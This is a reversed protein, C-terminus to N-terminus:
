PQGAVRTPTKRDVISGDGIQGNQNYGWCYVVKDVALGCTHSAGAVIASFSLGGAVPAPTQRSAVSGDGLAGLWNGGWCYAAGSTTLACTHSEGASVSAFPGGAVLVPVRRNSYSGDGLQGYYNDGWCYAEGSTTVGCSHYGPGASVTRFRLGGAVAVPAGRNTRSGDGLEGDYNYGWCYATGDITVGCVHSWGVSLSAFRHGGAVQSPLRPHSTAGADDGIQGFRNNGWCYAAGDATLACSQNGGAYLARFPPAGSIAIPTPTCKTNVQTGVALAWGCDHTGFAGAQALRNSLGLGWCYTAGGSTLGCVHWGGASISVFSLGGIVPLPGVAGTADDTVVTTHVGVGLQDFSNQGWCSAQGANTLACTFYYGARLSVFSAPAASLVTVPAGGDIDDVTAGITVLGTGVATVRGTEDVTAVASNSTRWTIPQGTVESCRGLGADCRYARATLNVNAGLAVAAAPPSVDVRDIMLPVGVPVAISGTVGESTVIITVTGAAVGTVLGRQDVTAISGDSSRWEQARGTVWNGNRDLTVAGLLVTEGVNVTPKLAWTEISAVPM